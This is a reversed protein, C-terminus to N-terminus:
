KSLSIVELIEIAGNGNADISSFKADVEATTIVNNKDTDFSAFVDDADKLSGFKSDTWQKEFDAKQVSGDVAKTFSKFLQSFEQKTLHQDNNNDKEVREFLLVFPIDHYIKSYETVFEQSTVQGDGNLDFRAYVAASDKADLVGNGDLDALFFYARSMELNYNTIKQWATTFETVNIKGDSNLDMNQYLDAMEASTITGDMDEDAKIYLTNILGMMDMVDTQAFVAVFMM